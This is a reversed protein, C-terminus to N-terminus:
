CRGGVLGFQKVAMDIEAFFNAFLLNACCGGPIPTGDSFDQIWWCSGGPISAGMQFVRSGGAVAGQSQAGMESIRSGGSSIVVLQM